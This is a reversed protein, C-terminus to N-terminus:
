RGVTNKLFGTIQSSVAPYQWSYDHGPSQFLKLVTGQSKESSSLNFLATLNAKIITLVDGRSFSDPVIGNDAIVLTRDTNEGRYWPPPGTQISFVQPNQSLIDMVEGSILTGMSEGTVVVKLDPNQVTLFEIRSALDEAKSSYNLFMEVFEECHGFFNDATRQYTLVLSDIGSASLQGQIGNLISGWGTDTEPLNNGWGGPNFLLLVDKDQSEVYMSLLEDIFNQSEEGIDGFLRGALQVADDAVSEPVASLDTGAYLPHGGAGLESAVGVSTVSLGVVINIILVFVLIVPLRWRRSHYSKRIRTEKM